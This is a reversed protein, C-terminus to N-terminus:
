DRNDGKRKFQKLEPVQQAEKNYATAEQMARIAKTLKTYADELRCAM